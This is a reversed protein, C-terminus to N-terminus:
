KENLSNDGVFYLMIGGLIFLILISLISARPNGTIYATWGMIIPGIVVAFKGLMNYFGLFEAAKEQPIIKTYLSRSLAQIGGQVLGIIVALIYFERVNTMKYGWFTVFAYVGLCIFIAKKVGTKEGTIIAAPFGVFQTILLAAILSKSDFGISLGFDVAMRIITDVGDIYLWYGCLFIIVNKFKKIEKFTKILQKYGDILSRSLSCNNTNKNEKVFIFLPISFVLWWVAVSLFSIRVAASSDSIGFFSPSATMFINVTFLLGGGLYGLSYGISSIMDRKSYNSVDILMADYFILGASYGISAIIYFLAASSFDGRGIFYLNATAIVGIFTFFALFKKKSSGCDAAAGIFPAIVAVIIGAISNALGLNLTSVSSTQGASWFEKFFVPFFGAMVTTTFASNAWDYLAWSIVPKIQMKNELNLSIEKFFKRM